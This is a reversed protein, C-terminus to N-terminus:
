SLHVSIWAGVGRSLALVASAVLLHKGIELFPRVGRDRALFCSLLGLLVLGWGLAAPIVTRGPLVVVLGVFSLAVAFRAFFNTLTARFAARPALRESEQYVHISLSDSINDAIAVILLSSILSPRLSPAAGLGTILGMSTVIAATSGFSVWNLKLM